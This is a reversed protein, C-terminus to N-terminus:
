LEDEVKSVDEARLIQLDKCVYQVITYWAGQGERVCLVSKFVKYKLIGFSELEDIKMPKTNVSTAQNQFLTNLGEVVM